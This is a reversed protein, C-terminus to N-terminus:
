SVCTKIYSFMCTGYLVPGPTLLILRGRKALWIWQLHEICIERNLFFANSPGARSQILQSSGKCLFLVVEVLSTGVVM